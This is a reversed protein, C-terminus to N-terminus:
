WANLNGSVLSPQPFLVDSCEYLGVEFYLILEARSM